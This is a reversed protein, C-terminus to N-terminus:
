DLPPDSEAPSPAIPEELLAPDLLAPDLLAPDLLPDLPPDLLPDLLPDLPPDLLPPDLLPDLPPDLLPPDLLPPPMTVSVTVARTKPGPDPVTVEPGAPIEQVAGHVFVALKGTPVETVSVALPPGSTHHAGPVFHLPDVHGSVRLLGAVMM